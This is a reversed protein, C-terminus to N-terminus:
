KVCQPCGRLMNKVMGLFLKVTWGMLGMLGMPGMYKMVNQVPGDSVSPRCWPWCKRSEPSRKLMDGKMIKLERKPCGRQMNQVGRHLIMKLWLPM